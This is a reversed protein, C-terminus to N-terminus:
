GAPFPLGLRELDEQSNVNTLSLGEPDVARWESEFVVAIEVDHFFSFVQLDGSALRKEVFPSCSKRYVAHLPEYKGSKLPVAGDVERAREALLRLFDANLFPMDCATIAILDHRAARLGAAIGGLPGSSPRLDPVVRVGFRAYAAARDSAILVDDSITRLTDIVRLVLPRGEFELHSKDSGMRLSKGGALAVASLPPAAEPSDKRKLDSRM